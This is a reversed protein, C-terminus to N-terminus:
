DWDFDEFTGFSDDKTRSVAAEGSDESGDWARYREHLSPVGTEVNDDFDQTNTDNAAAALGEPGDQRGMIVGVAWSVVSWDITALEM